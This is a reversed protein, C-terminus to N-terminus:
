EYAPRLQRRRILLMVVFSWSAVVIALPFLATTVTFRELAAIGLMWKVGSLLYTSLTEENPRSYSKRLTPVFGLNDIITILIVSLLPGRTLFWFLLAVAAGALAIWDLTVIERNGGSAAIAAIVICVLATFATVWAGPGAHGYLQGVFAIITLVGWILWTFAHPRTRGAFIDRFYPLYSVLAIVTAAIGLVDRYTM